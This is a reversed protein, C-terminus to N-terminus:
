HMYAICLQDCIVSIYLATELSKCGRWMQRLIQRSIRGAVECGLVIRELAFEMPYDGIYVPTAKQWLLDWGLFHLM